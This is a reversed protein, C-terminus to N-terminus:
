VTYVQYVALIIILAVVGLIVYLIHERLAKIFKFGILGTVILAVVFVMEPTVNYQEPVNENIATETFHHASGTTDKLDDLLELGSILVKDKGENDLGTPLNLPDIDAGTVLKTLWIKANDYVYNLGSGLQKKMESLGDSEEAYSNQIFFGSIILIMLLYKM